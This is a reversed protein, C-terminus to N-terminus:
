REYDSLIGSRGGDPEAAGAWRLRERVGFRHRDYRQLGGSNVDSVSSPGLKLVLWDAWV